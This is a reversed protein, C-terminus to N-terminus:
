ATRRPRLLLPAYRAVFVAFAASWFCASAILLPAHFSPLMPAIVRLLAGVNVLVYLARTATDATLPQGTHGRTARTMVALTMVGFAGATIAHIGSATPALTPALMSAGLLMLGAGAWAFGVHLITVLPEALTRWGKWRSLRVLNLAGALLLAVGIPADADFVAWLLLALATLVLVAIDFRGAPVPEPAMKQKAMWNRTFSPTIRGGILCVLMTVVAVGLREGFRAADPACAGAHACVNALALVVILGCVPLNRVNRGAVIERAVIAAFVFLFASDIVATAVSEGTLMALRGALWLSFLAVLPAGAVPLRGTWNPIATLLFGAIVAGLYGFLMEHVHWDRTVHPLWGFYGAIWLPVSLAGWVGAAFFFPRFGMSFLPAGVHNRYREATTTM